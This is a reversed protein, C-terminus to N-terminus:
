FYAPFGTIDEGLILTHIEHTGEYTYLTEMNIMHRIVPYEDSIGNAGLISRALRAIKLSIEVNNRKALSVQTPKMTGKDKLRALHYVLLQAKTIETLMYVLKQQTLQYAAIPREFQVRTQAYKLSEDYCAMAAGISGWAISYRAQTLCMLASKLGSSGALINEEPIVCDDFSLEATDSARLSFKGKIPQAAFGATEKEVIFGRIKGDLKAWVIAVDALTGNTIWMKSGSLRYGGNVKTATTKMGSPNSGFDPETLGFCGVKEGSSLLPLWKQKQKESGFQFIPYIVLGGQVSVFSRLGSDGRELEQMVLGYAMNNMGAGGYEEPLTPGLFGLAGLQPILQVPFKADQHYETILPMFKEDVFKRATTRALLEEVSLYQSIQYYDPSEYM